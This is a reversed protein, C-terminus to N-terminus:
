DGSVLIYDRAKNLYDAALTIKGMWWSPLEGEHEMQELGQLIQAADEVTTKLKRRASPVDSHGDELLMDAAIALAQDQKMDKNKPEKRIKAAKAFVKPPLDGKKELKIGFSDEVEAEAKNLELVDKVQDIQQPTLGMHTLLQWVKVNQDQFSQPEMQYVPGCNEDMTKDQGSFTDLFLQTNHTGYDDKIIAAIDKALNRIDYNEPIAAKLKSRVSEGRVTELEEKIIQKLKAKTIKM